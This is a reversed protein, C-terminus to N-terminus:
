EYTNIKKKYNYIEGGNDSGREYEIELFAPVANIWTRGQNFVFENGDTDYFKTRSSASEKEWTAYFREGDLFIDADGEGITEIRRRGIADIVETETYMVVINKMEIVENDACIYPSNNIYRTYENNDRDYVWEVEYLPYSYDIIIKQKDAGRDKYKKSYINKVQFGNGQKIM